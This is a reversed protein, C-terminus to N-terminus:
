RTTVLVAESFDLDTAGIAVTGNEDIAFVVQM